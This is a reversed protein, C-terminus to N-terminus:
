SNYWIPQSSSACECWYVMQLLVLFNIPSSGRRNEPLEEGVVSNFKYVDKTLGCGSYAEETHFGNWFDSILLRSFSWLNAILTQQLFPIQSTFFQEGQGPKRRQLQPAKSSHEAVQEFYKVIQSVEWVIWCSFSIHHVAASCNVTERQDGINYLHLVDNYLNEKKGWM